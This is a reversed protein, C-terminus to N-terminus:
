ALNLDLRRLAAAYPRGERQYFLVSLERPNADLRRMADEGIQTGVPLFSGFGGHIRTLLKVWEEPTEGCAAPNSISCALTLVLALRVSLTAAKEVRVSTM